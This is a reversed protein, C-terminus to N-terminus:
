YVIIEVRKLIEGVIEKNEPEHCFEFAEDIDLVELLELFRTADLQLKNSRFSGRSAYGLNRIFNCIFEKSSEKSIYVTKLQFGNHIEIYEIEKNCVLKDIKSDEGIDLYKCGKPLLVSNKNDFVCVTTDFIITGTEKDLLSTFLETGRNIIGGGLTDTYAGEDDWDETLKIAGLGHIYRLNGTILSLELYLLSSIKYYVEAGWIGDVEGTSIDYLSACPYYGVLPQGDFESYFNWDRSSSDYGVYADTVDDYTLYVDSFDSLRNEIEGSILDIVRLGLVKYYKIGEEDRLLKSTDIVVGFADLHKM